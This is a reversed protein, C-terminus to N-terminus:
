NLIAYVAIEMLYVHLNLYACTDGTSAFGSLRSRARNFGNRHGSYNRHEPPARRRRATRWFYATHKSSMSGIDSRKPLPKGHAWLRVKYQPWVCAASRVCEVSLSGVVLGIEPVDEM